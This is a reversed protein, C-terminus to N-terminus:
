IAGSDLAAAAAAFAPLLRCDARTRSTALSRFGPLATSIPVIDFFEPPLIMSNQGINKTWSLGRFILLAGRTFLRNARCVAAQKSARREIM